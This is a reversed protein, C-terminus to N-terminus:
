LSITGSMMACIALAATAVLVCCGLGLIIRGVRIRRRQAAAIRDILADQANEDMHQWIEFAPFQPAPPPM